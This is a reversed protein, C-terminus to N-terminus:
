VWRKGEFLYALLDEFNALKKTGCKVTPIEDEYVLKRILYETADTEPDLELLMQFLKQVSRLRKFEASMFDGTRESNKSPPM